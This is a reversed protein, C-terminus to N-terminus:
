RSAASPTHLPRAPVMDDGHGGLTVATVDKVSVGLEWAIFAHSAPRTSCRRGPGGVMKHPFGTIRQCLTGDRRATPSSSSSPARAYQKIGRGGEAHIKSNVSILDDRSMGPKRPLGAPHRHGRRLGQHGRLQQHGERQRRVPEVPGVEAIDLAKGPRLGEVNDFLM